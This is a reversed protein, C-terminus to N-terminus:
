EHFFCAAFDAYISAFEVGIYGGDGLVASRVVRYDDLSIYTFQLGGVVDGMAFINPATTRLHEDVVVGGRATVAIGANELGLNETNPKRGTAVLVLDANRERTTGDTGVEVVARNGRTRIALVDTGTLVEVGRSELNQRVAEAIDEDERPLFRGGNQIITVRSGFDAYISAFEVGIYGGGIIVLRDPLRTQRLLGESTVVFTM